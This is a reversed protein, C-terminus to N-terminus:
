KMLKQIVDRWIYQNCPVCMGCAELDITSKRVVNRAPFDIKTMTSRNVKYGSSVKKSASIAKCVQAVAVSISKMKSSAASAVEAVEDNAEVSLDAVSIVEEEIGAEKRNILFGRGIYNGGRGRAENMNACIPIQMFLEISSIETMSSNCGRTEKVQHTAFEIVEEEIDRSKM